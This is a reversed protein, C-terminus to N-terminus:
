VVPSAREHAVASPEHPDIPGRMTVNDSRRRPWVLSQRYVSSLVIMRHLTKLSWGSAIFESTLWDLLEPHSPPEARVGFDGPTAVLGAGFHHAWVRNVMVRATLPNAPDVIAQAMELRGSGHEFPKRDPGSLLQLFQRPIDDGKEAPNGRKFIRPESPVERDEIFTAYRPESAANIILRDVEGQLKWLENCTASDVDYETHIVAEDPVECLSGPGYMLRRLKEDESDALSEPVVGGAEAAKLEAQWQADISQFLTAYRAIVESFSAPPTAFAEAVRPNFATRVSNRSNQRSKPPGSLM